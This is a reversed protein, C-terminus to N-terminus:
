FNSTEVAIAVPSTGRVVLTVSMGSNYYITM